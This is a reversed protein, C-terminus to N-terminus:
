RNTAQRWLNSWHPWQRWSFYLFVPTKGVLRNNGTQRSTFDYPPQARPGGVIKNM